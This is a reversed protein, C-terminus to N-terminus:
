CKEVGNGIKHIYNMVRSYSMSDNFLLWNIKCACDNCILHNGKCSISNDLYVNHNCMLCVYGKGIDGRNYRVINNVNHEATKFRSFM